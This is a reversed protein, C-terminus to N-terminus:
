FDEKCSHYSTSWWMFAHLGFGLPGMPMTKTNIPIVTISNRIADNKLLAGSLYNANLNNKDVKELIGLQDRDVCLLVPRGIQFTYGLAKMAGQMITPDVVNQNLYAHQRSKNVPFFFLNKGAVLKFDPSRSGHVAFIVKNQRRAESVAQRVYISLNQKNHRETLLRVGFEIGVIGVGIARKAGQIFAASRYVNGLAYAGKLIGYATKSPDMKLTVIQEKSPSNPKSLNRSFSVPIQSSNSDFGLSFRMSM